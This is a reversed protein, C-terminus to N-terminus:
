FWVETELALVHHWHQEVNGFENFQDVSEVFNNGFANNQNSYQFGYLIRLSPRVFIGPGLPNLVFGFKGQFTHRTDTDGYELGETDPQGDDNTFISDSHERYRNGELSREKAASGEALLHLTPTLYLQLRLVTSVFERDHDTPSIENDVDWYYGYVLGWAMDLRRPVLTMQMENGLNFQYREDTLEKVYVTYDEGDYTEAYRTEPHLRLVNAYLSNWRFPGFGGFGVYGIGKFSAATSGLPDPFYDERDPNAEVWSQVVEDRVYDEYDVGPTQYPANVNGAVSPEHLYQGGLGFELHKAVSVRFTGGFTLITNYEGRKLNFGSDGLGLMLEVNKKRLRGSFGVTEYFIRAPWMDYLGLMGFYSDLTGVQWTVDSLLINGAQVYLESLRIDALSGDSVTANGVSGGEIKTHVSTWVDTSTGKPELLDLRLELAAYPGENLLRGYLNWYGLKGDGGQFDPRTSVRFYGAVDARVAHAATPATLAFLLLLLTLRRM